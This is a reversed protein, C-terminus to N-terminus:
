PQRRESKSINLIPFPPARINPMYFIDLYVLEEWQVNNVDTRRKFVVNRCQNRMVTKAYSDYMVIICEKKNLPSSM